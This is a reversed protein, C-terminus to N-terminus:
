ITAALENLRLTPLSTYKAITELPLHDKLMALATREVGREIGSAMGESKADTIMEEIAKCVDIVEEDQPIPLNSGTLINLLNVSTVSMNKYNPDTQVLNRLETKSKACKLYLMVERLESSLKGANEDNFMTPTILNIRYDPIFKLINKDPLDIMEHLSTPALWPDSSFCVVLTIVATLRDEPYFGSLFAGPASSPAKKTQRHKAAITQVQEAYQLADYLMNRVPMAYHIESQNEIGLLIYSIYKDQMVTCQQLLDRYRQVPIQIYDDGYPLSVAATDLPKLSGPQIVKRGNYLIFNFADAFIVPNSMYAKTVADKAGM